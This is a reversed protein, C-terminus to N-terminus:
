FAVTVSFAFRVKRDRQAYALDLALPGAPTKYRAGFGYSRNPRWDASSDSADGVDAFVAGGWTPNFWHVYDASATALYRGGVVANGERPGLSEYLYGRVSRAGGARFLFDEPIGERSSALTRGLETRLLLQDMPGLPIWMQYQAYLKVFDQTSALAKAAAAVQFNLVFGRKPDFLDDVRRWTIACVPALARKVRDISGEPSTREVQYSLGIRSDVNEFTYQRYGAAAFRRTELGQIDTHEALVGVSDKAPADGLWRGLTSSLMSGITGGFIGQPLFVDAYGIQRKRDARVASQLDFGREFLNRYRLAVEGRPGADTGFGLALGVEWRPREVVTINVAAEEAHAPDRDIEVVVSSFWPGNQLARQVALLREQRYPEGRRIDYARLLVDQPYHALGQVVPVGLTFRPGSDVRLQLKATANDADVVAESAVLEGAAYDEEVLKERLARKAEEWDGSRFYLGEKLPWADRLQKRRAARAEGDAALDGSFEIAVEAVTARPGPVVVIRASEREEAWDIEVTASFYGESAAIQPVRRRIERAWPRLAAGRGETTELQPPPLLKQLQSRLPEPADWTVPLPAAAGALSAVALAAALLPRAVM